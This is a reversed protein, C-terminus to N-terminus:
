VAEKWRRQTDVARLIRLGARTLNRESLECLCVLEHGRTHGPNARFFFSVHPDRTREHPVAALTHRLIQPNSLRVIGETQRYRTGWRQSALADMLQQMSPPTPADCRPYFERWFVPLFRYTRYGSCILLWYLSGRDFHDSLGAAASLWTRALVTTSRATRDVITDGSCVVGIRRGSHATEYTLLTSFGRLCGSADELLLAWQKEELDRFFDHRAVGLFHRNLVSYMAEREACSLNERRAIRGKM